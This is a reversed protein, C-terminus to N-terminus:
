YNLQSEVRDSIESNDVEVSDIDAQNLFLKQVALQEPIACDPNGRWRRGEQQAQLRMAEVESKLIAEDGVVWVVEDVISAPNISDKDSEQARIIGTSACCCLFMLICYTLFSNRRM